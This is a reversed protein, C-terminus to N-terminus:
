DQWDASLDLWQPNQHEILAIKRDRKWGKLEKERAIAETPNAFREYYVLRNIKYKATHGPILGDKHLRVRNALDGSVGIYIARSLSAMIYVCYVKSELMTVSFALIVGTLLPM